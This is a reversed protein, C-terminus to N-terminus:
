RAWNQAANSAKTGPVGSNPYPKISRNLQSSYGPHAFRCGPFRVDRM